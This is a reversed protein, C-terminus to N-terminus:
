SPSPVKLTMKGKSLMIELEQLVNMGLLVLVDDSVSTNPVVVASINEFLFNGIELRAIKTQYGTIKGSATTVTTKELDPVGIRQAFTIPITVETAGTDVLFVVKEDNIYGEVVYQNGRNKQIILTKAQISSKSLHNSSKKEELVYSFFMTVSFFVCACCLFIILGAQGKQADFKHVINSM